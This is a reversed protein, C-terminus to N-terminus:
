IFTNYSRISLLSIHSLWHISRFCGVVFVTQFSGIFGKLHCILVYGFVLFRIRRVFSRANMVYLSMSSIIWSNSVENSFIIPKESMLLNCSKVLLLFYYVNLWRLNHEKFKYHIHM